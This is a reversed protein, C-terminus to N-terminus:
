FIGTKWITNKASVPLITITGKNRIKLTTM